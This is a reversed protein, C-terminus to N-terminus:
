LEMEGRLVIVSKGGLEVRDELSKVFVEGGRASAQYATLIEMGLREKWFGALVSHVSGTVPDEDIGIWPCFSRLMFDYRSEDSVSTIVVEKIDTNSKILLTYDPKVAKLTNADELEIFLTELETCIGASLYRSLGLSKMLEKEPIYQKLTYVPYSLWVTENEWVAKIKLDHITTFYLAEKANEEFLIRAAALTAHGCAPIETTSTFYRIKFEDKNKTNILFATVPLNLEAAISLLENSNTWDDAFCVATPNGCYPVSTFTDIIFVSGHM